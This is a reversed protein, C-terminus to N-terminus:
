FIPLVIHQNRDGYLMFLGIIQEQHFAETLRLRLYLHQGHPHGCEKTATTSPSLSLDRTSAVQQQTPITVQLPPLLFLYHGKYYPIITC